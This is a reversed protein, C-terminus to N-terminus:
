YFRFSEINVGALSLFPLTAYVQLSGHYIPGSFVPFRGHLVNGPTLWKDFTPNEAYLIEPIMYEPNVSDMYLGPLHILNSSYLLFLAIVSLYVMGGSKLRNFLLAIKEVINRIM